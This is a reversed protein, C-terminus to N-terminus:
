NGMSLLAGKAHDFGEGVRRLEETDDALRDIEEDRDRRLRKMRDGDERADELKFGLAKLRATEQEIVARLESATQEQQRKERAM